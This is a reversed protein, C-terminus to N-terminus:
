IQIVFQRFFSIIHSFYPDDKRVEEGETVRVCGGKEMAGRATARGRVDGKGRKVQGKKSRPPAVPGPNQGDVLEKIQGEREPREGWLADGRGEIKLFYAPVAKGGVEVRM